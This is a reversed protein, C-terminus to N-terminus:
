DVDDEDSPTIRESRSLDVEWAKGTSKNVIYVREDVAVVDCDGSSLETHETASVALCGSTMVMVLVLLANLLIRRM